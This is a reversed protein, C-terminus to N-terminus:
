QGLMRDMFGGRRFERPRVLELDKATMAYLKAVYGDKVQEDVAFTGRVRVPMNPYYRLPEGTASEVQVWENMKPAVGYCCIMMNRVLLFQTVGSKGIQIPMMFGTLAIETSDLSRIPEPIRKEFPADSSLGMGFTMANDPYIYEYSAIDEFHLLRYGDADLSDPLVVPPNIGTVDDYSATDTKAQVEGFGKGRIPEALAISCSGTPWYASALIAIAFPSLVVSLRRLLRQRSSTTM